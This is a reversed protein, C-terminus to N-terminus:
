ISAREIISILYRIKCLYQRCQTCTYREFKDTGMCTNWHHRRNCLYLDRPFEVSYGPFLSRVTITERDHRSFFVSVFFNKKENKSTQLFISDCFNWRSNKRMQLLKTSQLNKWSVLPLHLHIRFIIREFKLSRLLLRIEFM